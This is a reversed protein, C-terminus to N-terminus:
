AYLCDTEYKDIHKIRDSIIKDIGEHDTLDLERSNGYKVDSRYRWGSIYLTATSQPMFYWVVVVGKYYISVNCGPGVIAIKTTDAYQQCVNHLYQLIAKIENM